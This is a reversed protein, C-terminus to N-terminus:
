DTDHGELEGKGFASKGYWYENEMDKKTWCETCKKSSIECYKCIPNCRTCTQRLTDPLKEDEPTDESEQM